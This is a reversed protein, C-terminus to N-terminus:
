GNEVRGSTRPSVLTSQTAVNRRSGAPHFSPVTAERSAGGVIMLKGPLKRCPTPDERTTRHWDTQDKAPRGHHRQKTSREGERILVGEKRTRRGELKRGGNM